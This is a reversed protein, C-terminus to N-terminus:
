SNLNLILIEKNGDLDDYRTFIFMTLFLYLFFGFDFYCETLRKETTMLMKM